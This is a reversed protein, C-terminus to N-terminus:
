SVMHLFVGLKCSHVLIKYYCVLIELETCLQKATWAFVRSILWVTAISSGALSLLLYKNARNGLHNSWIKLM